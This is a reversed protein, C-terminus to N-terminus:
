DIAWVMEFVAPQAKESRLNPMLAPNQALSGCRFAPQMSPVVAQGGKPPQLSYVQAAAIITNGPLEAPKCVQAFWGHKYARM